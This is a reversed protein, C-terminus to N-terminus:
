STECTCCELLRFCKLCVSTHQCTTKREPVEGCISCLEGIGHEHALPILTFLVRRSFKVGAIKIPGDDLVPSGVSM